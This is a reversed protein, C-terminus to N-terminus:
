KSAFRIYRMICRICRPDRRVSPLDRLPNIVNRAPPSDSSSGEKRASRNSQGSISIASYRSELMYWM